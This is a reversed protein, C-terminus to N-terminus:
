LLVRICREDGGTGGQLWIRLPPAFRLSTTPCVEQWKDTAPSANSLNEFEDFRFARRLQEFEKKFNALGQM